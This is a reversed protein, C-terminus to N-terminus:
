VPLAGGDWVRVVKFLAAYEEVRHAHSRPVLIRTLKRVNHTSCAVVLNDPHNPGYGLAAQVRQYFRSRPIVHEVTLRDSCSGGFRYACRAGDREILYELVGKPMAVRRRSRRKMPTRRLATQNMGNRLPIATV